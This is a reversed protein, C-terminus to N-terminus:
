AIVKKRDITRIWHALVKRPLITKEWKTRCRVSGRYYQYCVPPIVERDCKQNEQDAGPEPIPTGKGPHCCPASM